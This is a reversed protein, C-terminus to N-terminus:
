ASVALDVRGVQELEGVSKAVFLSLWTKSIVHTGLIEVDSLGDFHDRVDKADAFVASFDKQFTDLHLYPATGSQLDAVTTDCKQQIVQVPVCRINGSEESISFKTAKDPSELLRNLIRLIFWKPPSGPLAKPDIDILSAVL